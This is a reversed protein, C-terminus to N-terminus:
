LTLKEEPFEQPKPGARQEWTRIAAKWDKMSDKGIKWGKSEYFDVFHQANITNNREKCYEQVEEVTPKVFRKNEKKEPEKKEARQESPTNDAPTSKLNRCRKEYKDSEEDVRSKINNWIKLDRWDTFDPEEGYRVYNIVYMAYTPQLEEPIDELYEFHFVFSERM